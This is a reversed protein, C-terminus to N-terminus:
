EKKLHTYLHFFKASVCEAVRTCKCMRVCVCVLTRACVGVCVQMWWLFFPLSDINLFFGGFLSMLAFAVPGIIAATRDDPVWAGIMVVYSEAALTTIVITACYTVVHSLTTQLGVFYYGVLSFILGFLIQLPTDALSKSWFYASTRYAGAIRERLFLDREELFVRLSAQASFIQSTLVFYLAGTRDQVSRQNMGVGYFLMGVILGM